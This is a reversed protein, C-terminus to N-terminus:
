RGFHTALGIFLVFSWILFPRSGCSLLAEEYAVVKIAVPRKRMAKFRM